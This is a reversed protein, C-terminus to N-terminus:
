RLEADQQLEKVMDCFERMAFVLETTVAHEQWNSCIQFTEFENEVGQAKHREAEHLSFTVGMNRSAINGKCNFCFSTLVYSTSAIWRKRGIRLIHTAQRFEENSSAAECIVELLVGTKRPQRLARVVLVLCIPSYAVLADAAFWIDLLVPKGNPLHWAAVYLFEAVFSAFLSGFMYACSKLVTHVIGGESERWTALRGELRARHVAPCHVVFLMYFACSLPGIVFCCRAWRRLTTM